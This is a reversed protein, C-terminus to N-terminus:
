VGNFGGQATSSTSFKSFWVLGGWSFCWILFGSLELRDGLEASPEAGLERMALHPPNKTFRKSGGTIYHSIYSFWLFVM